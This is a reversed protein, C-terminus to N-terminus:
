LIFIILARLETFYQDSDTEPLALLKKQDREIKKLTKKEQDGVYFSSRLTFSIQHVIVTLVSAANQYM